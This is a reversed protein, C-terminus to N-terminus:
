TQSCGGVGLATNNRPEKAAPQDSSPRPHSDVGRASATSSGAKGWLALAPPRSSGDLGVGEKGGGACRDPTPHLPKPPRPAMGMKERFRGAMSNPAHSRNEKRIRDNLIARTNTCRRAGPDCDVCPTEAKACPCSRPSCTHTLPCSCCRSERAPATKRRKAANQGGARPVTTGVHVVVATSPRKPRDHDDGLLLRTVETSALNRPSSPRQQESGHNPPTSYRESEASHFSSPDPLSLEQSSELPEQKSEGQSTPPDVGEFPEDVGVVTPMGSTVAISM